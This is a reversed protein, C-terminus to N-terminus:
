RSTFYIFESANTCLSNIFQEMLRCTQESEISFKIRQKVLPKYFEKSRLRNQNDVSINYQVMDFYQGTLRNSLIGLLFDVLYDYETLISDQTLLRLYLYVEIAEVAYNDYGYKFVYFIIDLVSDYKVGVELNSHVFSHLLLAERDNNCNIDPTLFTLIGISSNLSISKSEKTEFYSKVFSEVTLHPFFFQSAYIWSSSKKEKYSKTSNILKLVALNLNHM